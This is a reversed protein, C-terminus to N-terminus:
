ATKITSVIEQTVESITKDSSDIITGGLKKTIQLLRQAFNEMDETILHPQNRNIILRKERVDRQAHICFLVHNNIGQKELYSIAFEPNFSGELFIYHKGTMCTLKKIWEHTMAEQWKEPSGYDTVMKEFAPVGIDDFYNISVMSNPLQQELAKLVTTKGSGSAGIIFIFLVNSM